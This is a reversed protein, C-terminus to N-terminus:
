DFPDFVEDEIKTRRAAHTDRVFHVLNEAYTDFPPCHVGTGQLLAMTNRCNYFCQRDFSEIFSLPARALRDLGPTRLLTRALGAPLFGRALKGESLEAVLEYVRRAPLPNPDTLHFTRGAAREDRSLRYGADVVFDIPALHLPATGRGPLPVRMQLLNTSILVILYYPGDLKDIEGSVSDGVVIGPRLITVPLNRQAARALKEAEFKTEEYFNHFSQGEDLEEELIVGKRRGSVVATSWHIVRRLRVADGALELVGRTGEVNVRRATARDVGMYYIGAMHQITTIEGALTRYEQGSLGLDMDCVDGEVVEIRASQQAPLSRALERAAEAFKSRALLFVRADADRALIHQAMRRATFAPFGTVLVVEPRPPDTERRPRAQEGNGATV